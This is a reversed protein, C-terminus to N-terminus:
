SSSVPQPELDLIVPEPLSGHLLVLFQGNWARREMGSQWSPPLMLLRREGPGLVWGDHTVRYCHPPVWPCGEPVLSIDALGGQLRNPHDSDLEWYAPEDAWRVCWLREDGPSFWPADASSCTFGEFGETRLGLTGKTHLDIIYVAKGSGGKTGWGMIAVRHFDPSMSAFTVEELLTDDFTITRTSDEPKMETAPPSSRRPLDWTVIKGNGVVAVVNEIVRLGHVVMGTDITLYLIGSELDLIVVVNDNLRAVVVASRNPLFDLVFDETNQPAGTSTTPPPLKTNWLQVM